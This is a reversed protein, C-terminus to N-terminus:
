TKNSNMDIVVAVFIVLGKVITQYYSSVELLNLANSLVGITLAGILTGGLTGIGGALSTGGLVVAAIADLEYASGATPQASSLRSSLIVAALASFIGSLVYTLSKYRVVNVGSLLTAEENGGIAYVYRGLRTNKLVYDMLWYIFLMLIVPVPINWVYGNGFFYFIDAQEGISIPKGDTIVLTFGRLMTMSVLTIIFAQLNLKAILWGNIYGLLGGIFLMLLIAPVDALGSQLLLAGIAGTIALISGVSLDIGATLIVLTMGVAILANVSTQRFINLLNDLAFFRPNIFGIVTSFLLLGILAKNATLFNKIKQM